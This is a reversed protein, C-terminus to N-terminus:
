ENILVVSLIKTKTAIAFFLGIFFGAIVFNLFFDGVTLKPALNFLSNWSIVNIFYRLPSLIISGAIYFHYIGFVAIIFGLAFGIIGLGATILIQKINKSFFTISVGGLIGFILTVLYYFPSELIDSNRYLLGGWIMGGIGFGIAASLLYKKFSIEMNKIIGWRIVKFRM